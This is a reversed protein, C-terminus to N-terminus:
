IEVALLILQHDVNITKKIIWFVPRAMRDAARCHQVQRPAKQYIWQFQQNQTRIRACEFRKLDMSDTPKSALPDWWRRASITRCSVRSELDAAIREEEEECSDCSIWWTNTAIWYKSIQKIYITYQKTLEKFITQLIKPSISKKWQFEKYISAFNYHIITWPRWFNSKM